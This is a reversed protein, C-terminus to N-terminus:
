LTPGLIFAYRHLMQNGAGPSVKYAISTHLLDTVTLSLGPGHGFLASLRQDLRVSSECDGKRHNKEEGM